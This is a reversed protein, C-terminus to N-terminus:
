YICVMYLAIFQIDVHINRQKYVHVEELFLRLLELM